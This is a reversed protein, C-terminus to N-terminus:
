IIFQEGKWVLLQSDGIMLRGGDRSWAIASIGSEHVYKNVLEAGALNWLSVTYDSQVALHEGTRDFIVARIEGDGAGYTSIYEGTKAELIHVQNNIFYALFNRDPSVNLGGVPDDTIM